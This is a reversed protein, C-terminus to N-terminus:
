WFTLDKTKKRKSRLPKGFRGNGSGRDTAMREAQSGPGEEKSGDGIFWKSSGSITELVISLVM